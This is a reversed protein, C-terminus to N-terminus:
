TLHVKSPKLSYQSVLVTSDQRLDVLQLVAQRAWDPLAQRKKSAFGQERGERIIGYRLDPM